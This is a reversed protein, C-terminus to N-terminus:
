KVRAAGSAPLYRRLVALLLDPEVPKAIHDNMGAALCRARDEAFANATMAIIPTRAYGPLQRIHQTAELGDMGPMLVDMLILDYNTKQVQRKYM